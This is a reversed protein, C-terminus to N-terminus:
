KGYSGNRFNKFYAYCLYNKLLRKSISKMKFSFFSLYLIYLTLLLLPTFISGYTLEFCFEGGRWQSTWMSPQLPWRITTWNETALVLLSVYDNLVRRLTQITFAFWYSQVCSKRTYLRFYVHYTTTFFLTELQNPRKVEAELFATKVELFTKM